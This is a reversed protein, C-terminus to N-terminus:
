LYTVILAFANWIMHSAICPLLSDTKVRITGYILGGLFTAGVLYLGGFIHVIGFLISSIIIAVKDGHMRQVSDLIYGRFMLEETIPALVAVVLFLILIEFFGSGANVGLDTDISPEGFLGFYLIGYVFVIIYDIISIAIPIAALLVLARKINRFKLMDFTRQLSGDLYIFIFITPIILLQCLLSVFWVMGISVDFLLYAPLLFILPLIILNLLSYILWFTIIILWSLWLKNSAGTNKHNSSQFWDPYSFDWRHSKDDSRAYLLNGIESMSLNTDEELIKPLSKKKSIYLRENFHPEIFSYSIYVVSLSSIIFLILFPILNGLSFLASFFFTSLLLLMSGLTPFDGIFSRGFPGIADDSNNM